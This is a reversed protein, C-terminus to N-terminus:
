ESVKKNKKREDHEKEEAKGFRVFELPSCRVHTNLLMNTYLTRKIRLTVRKNTTTERERERERARRRKRKEGQGNAVQQITTNERYIGISPVFPRSTVHVVHHDSEQLLALLIIQTPFLTSM